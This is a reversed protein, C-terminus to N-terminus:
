YLGPVLRWTRRRYAEYPEGLREGLAAEEVRIRWGFAGVTIVLMAIAGIANGLALAAGLFVLLQGLYGPHRIRRYPGTEVLRHDDRVEVEFTFLEDLTRMARRRIWLGALIVAGGVLLWLPQDGPLGGFRAFRMSFAVSYGVAIAVYLVVLSGRDAPAVTGRGRRKRQRVQQSVEVALYAMSFLAVLFADIM